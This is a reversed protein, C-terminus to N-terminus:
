ALLAAPMSMTMVDSVGFFTHTGISLLRYAPFYSVKSIWHQRAIPGCPPRPKKARPQHWITSATPLSPKSRGPIIAAHIQVVGSTIVYNLAPDGSDM